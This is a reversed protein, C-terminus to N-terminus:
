DDTAEKCKPEQAPPEVADFYYSGATGGIHRRHPGGHPFIAECIDDNEPGRAGCRREELEGALAARVTCPGCEGCDRFSDPNPQYGTCRQGAVDRLAAELRSCRGVLLTHERVLAPNELQLEDLEIRLRAVEGAVLREGPRSM